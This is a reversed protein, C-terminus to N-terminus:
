HQFIIRKKANLICTQLRLFTYLEKTLILNVSYDPTLMEKKVATLNITFIKKIASRM